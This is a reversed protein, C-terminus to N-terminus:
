RCRPDPPGTSAAARLASRAESDLDFQRRLRSRTGLLCSSVDLRCTVPMTYSATTPVDAPEPDHFPQLPVFFSPTGPAFEWPGRHQDLRPLNVSPPRGAPFLVHCEWDTRNYLKLTLPLNLLENALASESCYKRSNRIVALMHASFNIGFAGPALRSSKNPSSRRPETFTM